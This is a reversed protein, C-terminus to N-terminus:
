QLSWIIDQEGNFGIETFLHSILQSTQKKNSFPTMQTLLAESDIFNCSSYISSKEAYEISQVGYLEAAKLKKQIPHDPYQALGAQTMPSILLHVQAEFAAYAFALDIADELQSDLPHHELVVWRQAGQHIVRSGFM